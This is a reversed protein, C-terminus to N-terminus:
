ACLEGAVALRRRAGRISTGLRVALSEADPAQGAAIKHALEVSLPLRPPTDTAVWVWGMNIASGARRLRKLRGSAAVQTLGLADALQQATIPEYQAALWAYARTAPPANIPGSMM